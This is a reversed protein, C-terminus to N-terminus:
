ESLNNFEALDNVRSGIELSRMARIGLLLLQFMNLRCRCGNNNLSNYEKEKEGTTQQAARRYLHLPACPTITNREYKIPLAWVRPRNYNCRYIKGATNLFRYSFLGQPSRLRCVGFLVQAQTETWCLQAETRQRRRRLTQLLPVITRTSKEHSRVNTEHEQLCCKQITSFECLGRRLVASVADIHSYIYIHLITKSRNKEPPM